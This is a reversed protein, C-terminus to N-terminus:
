AKRKLFGENVKLKAWSVYFDIAEGEVSSIINTIGTKATRGDAIHLPEKSAGAKVTKFPINAVGKGADDVLKFRMFFLGADEEDITAVSVAEGVQM